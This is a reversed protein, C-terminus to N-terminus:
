CFYAFAPAIALLIDPRSDQLRVVMNPWEAQCVVFAARAIGLRVV